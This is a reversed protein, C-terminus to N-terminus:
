SRGTLRRRLGRNRILVGGGIIIATAGLGIGIWAALPLGGGGGSENALGAPTPSAARTTASQSTQPSAGSTVPTVSPGGSPGATVSPSPAASPSATAAPCATGVALTADQTTHPIENAQSDDLVTAALTLDVMGPAAPATMTFRVLVGSGTAGGSTIAADNSVVVAHQGGSDPVQGSVDPDIAANDAVPPSPHNLLSDAVSQDTMTGSQETMIGQFGLTFEGAVLDKVDRVVVDM